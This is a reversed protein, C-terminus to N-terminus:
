AKHVLTIGQRRTERFAYENRHLEKLKMWLHEIDQDKLRGKFRIKYANQYHEKVENWMEEVPPKKM